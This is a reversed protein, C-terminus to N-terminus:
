KSYSAGKSSITGHVPERGGGTVAYAFAGIAYFASIVAWPVLNGATKLVVEGAEDTPDYEFISLSNIQRQTCCGSMLLASCLLGITFVRM